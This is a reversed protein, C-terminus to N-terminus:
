ATISAFALNPDMNKSALNRISNRTTELDKKTNQLNKIVTVVKDNITELDSILFEKTKKYENNQKAFEFLVPISALVIGVGLGVFGFGESRKLEMSQKTILNQVDNLTLDSKPSIDYELISGYVIMIFSGMLIFLIGTFIMIIGIFGYAFNFTFAFKQKELRQKMLRANRIIMLLGGFSFAIVFVIQYVLISSEAM